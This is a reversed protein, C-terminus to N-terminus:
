CFECVEPDEKRGKFDDFCKQDHFFRDGSKIAKVGCVKGCNACRPIEKTKIKTIEEAM